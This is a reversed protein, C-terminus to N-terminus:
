QNRLRDMADSVYDVEQAVDQVKDALYLLAHIQAVAILFGAAVPAGNGGDQMVQAGENMLTVASQKHDVNTM